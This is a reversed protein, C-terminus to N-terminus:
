RYANELCLAIANTPLDYIRNLDIEAGTREGHLLRIVTDNYFYICYTPARYHFVESFILGGEEDYYLLYGIGGEILEYYEIGGLRLILINNYYFDEYFSNKKYSFPPILNSDKRIRFEHLGEIIWDVREDIKRVIEATTEDCLSVAEEIEYYDANYAGVELSIETTVSVPNIEDHASDDLLLAVSDSAQICGSFIIIALIIIMNLPKSKNKM